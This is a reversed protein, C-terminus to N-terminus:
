SEIGTNGIRISRCGDHVLENWPGMQVRGETFYIRQRIGHPCAENAESCARERRTDLVGVEAGSGTGPGNDRHITSCNGDITSLQKHALTLPLRQTQITHNSLPAKVSNGGFSRHISHTQPLHRQPSQIPRM